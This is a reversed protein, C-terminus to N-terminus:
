KPSWLSSRCLRGIRFHTMFADIRSTCKSFFLLTMRRAGHHDQCFLGDSSTRTSSPMQGARRSTRNITNSRLVSKRDRSVAFTKVQHASISFLHEWMQTDKLKTLNGHTDKLETLNATGPSPWPPWGDNM